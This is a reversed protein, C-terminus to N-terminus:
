NQEVNRMYNTEYKKKANRKKFEDLSLIYIEPGGLTVSRVVVM